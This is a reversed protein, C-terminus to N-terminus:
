QPLLRDNGMVSERIANFEDHLKRAIRKKAVRSNSYEGDSVLPHPRPARAKCRLDPYPKEISVEM